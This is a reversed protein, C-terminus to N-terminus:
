RLRKKQLIVFLVVLLFAITPTLGLFVNKIQEYENMAIEDPAPSQIDPLNTQTLTPTMTPMTSATPTSSPIRTPSPQRTVQVSPADVFLSSYWVEYNTTSATLSDRVFWVAHLHNGGSIALRPYEPFGWDSSVVKPDSWTEGDWMLHYIALQAELDDTERGVLLLHIRGLSDVSMDYLDFDNIWQRAFIGSLIAPASWAEGSNNSWM